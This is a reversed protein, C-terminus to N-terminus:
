MPAGSTQLSGSAARLFGRKQPLREDHVRHSSCDIDSPLGLSMSRTHSQLLARNEDGVYFGVDVRLIARSDMVCQSYSLEYLAM